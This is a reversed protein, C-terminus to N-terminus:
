NGTGVYACMVTKVVPTPVQAQKSTACDSAGGADGGGTEPELGRPRQDSSRAHVHHRRRHAAGGAANAESAGGGGERAPAARARSGVGSSRNETEEFPICM